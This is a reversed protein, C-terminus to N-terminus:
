LEQNITAIEERVANKLEQTTHLRNRHAYGNFCGWLLFFDSVTLESPGVSWLFGSVYFHVEHSMLM